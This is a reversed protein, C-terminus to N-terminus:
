LFFLPLSSLLVFSLPGFNRTQPLSGQSLVAVRQGERFEEITILIFERPGGAAMTFGWAVLM